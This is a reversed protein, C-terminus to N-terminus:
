QCYQADIVVYIIWIILSALGVIKVKLRVEYSAVYSLM